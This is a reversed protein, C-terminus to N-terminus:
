LIYADSDSVSSIAIPGLYVHYWLMALSSISLQAQMVFTMRRVCPSKIVPEAEMLHCDSSM